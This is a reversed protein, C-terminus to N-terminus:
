AVGVGEPAPASSRSRLFWGFLLWPVATLAVILAYEDYRAEDGNPNAFTRLLTQDPGQLTMVEGNYVAAMLPQGQGFEPLPVSSAAIKLNETHGDPFLVGVFHVDPCNGRGACIVETWTGESTVSVTLICGHQGAYECAPASNLTRAAGSQHYGWLWLAMAAALALGAIFFMGRYARTNSQPPANWFM